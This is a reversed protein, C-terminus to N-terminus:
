RKLREPSVNLTSSIWGKHLGAKTREAASDGGERIAGYKATTLFIRGLSFYFAPCTNM